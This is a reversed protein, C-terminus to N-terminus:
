RGQAGPKHSGGYRAMFLEELSPERTTLHTVRTTALAQVLPEMPGHVECELTHDTIRVGTVGPIGDLHPAPGDFTARVHVAALSRLVDLRGTEILRGARLMAVRDCVAEVESLVHSSLFVTQGRDRAARVCNRFEQEMLPDLGTTPEDLLLLDARSAFAAILPVKQRNGHSYARVKKHPDLDFREVLEDRYATDTSGHINALFELVEAGTLSPWLNAESPVYAIRRHVDLLDDRVDLGFITAKGSTPRVLGLMIAITTSKGSGNPGLYGFVEGAEVELDLADLALTPGYRKSLQHLQIATPM